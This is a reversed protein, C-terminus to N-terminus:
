GHRTERRIANLTKMLGYLDARPATGPKRGFTDHLASYLGFLRRYIAHETPDPTYTASVPAVMTESLTQADGFGAAAAALIAAGKAPTELSGSIGIPRGTIDAYIQMILPS